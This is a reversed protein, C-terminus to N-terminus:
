SLRHALKSGAQAQSHTRPQVPSYITHLKQMVQSSLSSSASKLEIIIQSLPPVESVNLVLFWAMHSFVPTKHESPQFCMQIRQSRACMFTRSASQSVNRNEQHWEVSALRTRATM